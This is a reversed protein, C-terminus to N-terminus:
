RVHLEKTSNYIGGWNCHYCLIWLVGGKSHPVKITVKAIALVRMNVTKHCGNSYKCEQPKRCVGVEIWVAKSSLTEGLAVWTPWCAQGQRHHKNKGKFSLCWYQNPVISRIRPIRKSRSVAVEDVLGFNFTNMNNRSKAIRKKKIATLFTWLRIDTLIRSLPENSFKITKLAPCSYLHSDAVDLIAISSTEIPILKAWNQTM